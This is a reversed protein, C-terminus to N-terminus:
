KTETAGKSSGSNGPRYPYVPQPRFPDPQPLIVQKGDRDVYINIPAAPKSAYIVAAIAVGISVILLCVSGIISFAREM